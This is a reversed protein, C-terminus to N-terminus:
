RQMKAMELQEQAQKLAGKAADLLIEDGGAGASVVDSLYAVADGLLV